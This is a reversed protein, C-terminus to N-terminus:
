ERGRAILREGGPTEIDDLEGRRLPYALFYVILRNPPAEPFPNNDLVGSLEESSRVLVGVPKGMKETLSQELLKQVSSESRKSKFVVNGSQIYTTVDTFGCGECISRLDAMDLKGTGGVNIARLLAVYATM